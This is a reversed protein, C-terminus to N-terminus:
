QQIDHAMPHLLGPSTVLPVQCAYVALYPMLYLAAVIYCYGPRSEKGYLRTLAVVQNRKRPLRM